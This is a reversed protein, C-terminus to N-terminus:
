RGFGELGNLSIDFGEQLALFEQNMWPDEPGLTIRRILLQTWSNHSEVDHIVRAVQFPQTSRILCVSIEEAIGRVQMNIEAFLFSALPSGLSTPIPEGPILALWAGMRSATDSDVIRLFESTIRLADKGGELVLFLL